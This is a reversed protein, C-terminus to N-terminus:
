ILEIELGEYQSNEELDLVRTLTSSVNPFGELTYSIDVTPYQMIGKSSLYVTIGTITM